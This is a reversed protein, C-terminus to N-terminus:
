GAAAGMRKVSVMIERLYKQGERRVLPSDSGGPLQQIAEVLLEVSVQTAVSMAAQIGYQQVIAEAFKDPPAGAEFAPELASRLQDALAVLQPDLASQQAQAPPLSVDPPSPHPQAPAPVPAPPTDLQQAEAFTQPRPGSPPAPRQQGRPEVYQPEASVAQEFEPGDETAFAPRRGALARPRTHPAIQGAQMHAAAQMRMREDMRIQEAQEPSMEPRPRVIDMAGKIVEPIKPLGAMAVQAVLTKWDTPQQDGGTDRVFGLDEATKSFKAVQKAVDKNNEAEVRYREAEARVRDLENKLTALQTEYGSKMNELRGEFNNRQSEMDRTHGREADGVREDARRQAAAIDRDFNARMQEIADRSRREAEQVRADAREREERARSEARQEADRVRADAREDAARVQRDLNNAQERSREEMNRLQTMLESIRAELASNNGQMLPQLAKVMAIPDHNAGTASLMEIRDKYTRDIREIEDRKAQQVRELEANRQEALITLSDKERQVRLREATDARERERDL